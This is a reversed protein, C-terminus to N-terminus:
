ARTRPQGVIGGEVHIKNITIAISVIIKSRVEHRTISKRKREKRIMWSWGIAGVCVSKRTSRDAIGTEAITKEMMWPPPPIEYSFIRPSPRHDVPVQLVQGFGEARRTQCIEVDSHKEALANELVCAAIEQIGDDEVRADVRARIIGIERNQM